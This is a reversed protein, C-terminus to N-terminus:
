AMAVGRRWRGPVEAPDILGIRRWGTELLWTRAEAVLPPANEV